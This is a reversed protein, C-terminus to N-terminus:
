LIHLKQGFVSTRKNLSLIIYLLCEGTSLETRRFFAPIRTGKLDQHKGEGVEGEGARGVGM